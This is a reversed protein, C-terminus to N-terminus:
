NNEPLYARFRLYDIRPSGDQRHTYYAASSRQARYDRFRAQVCKLENPSISSKEAWTGEAWFQGDEYIREHSNKRMYCEHKNQVYGEIGIIWPSFSEEQVANYIKQKLLSLIYNHNPSLTQAEHKMNGIITLAIEVCIMMGYQSARIM